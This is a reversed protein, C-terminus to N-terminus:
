FLIVQPRPHPCESPLHTSIHLRSPPAERVEAGKPGPGFKARLFSEVGFSMSVGRAFQHLSTLFQESAASFINTSGPHCLSFSCRFVNVELLKWYSRLQCHSNLSPFSLNYSVRRWCCPRSQMITVGEWMVEGSQSSCSSILAVPSTGLSLLSRSSLTSIISLLHLQCLEIGITNGRSQESSVRRVKTEKGRLIPGFWGGGKAVWASTPLLRVQLEVDFPKLQMRSSQQHSEAQLVQM